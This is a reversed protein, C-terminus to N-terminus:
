RRRQELLLDSRKLKDLDARLQESETTLRAIEAQRSAIEAQRSTIEARLRGLETDRGTADRQVRALEAERGALQQRLTELEADREAVRARLKVLAGIVDRVVRAHPADAAANRAVIEDYAALAEDYDGRQALADARDFPSDAPRRVPLWLSCGALMVAGVTLAWVGGASTM